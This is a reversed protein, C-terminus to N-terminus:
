FFLVVLIVFKTLKLAVARIYFVQPVNRLVLIRFSWERQAFSLLVAEFFHM